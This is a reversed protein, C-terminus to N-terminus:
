ISVRLFYYICGERDSVAAASGCDNVAAATMSLSPCLLEELIDPGVKKTNKISLSRKHVREVWATLDFDQVGLHDILRRYPRNELSDAFLPRTILSAVRAQPLHAM